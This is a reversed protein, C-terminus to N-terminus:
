RNRRRADRQAKRKARAARAQKATVIQPTPQGHRAHLTRGEADYMAPPKGLVLLESARLLGIV